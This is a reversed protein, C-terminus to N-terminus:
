LAADVASLLEEDLETGFFAIRGSKDILVFSPMNKVGFLDSILLDRDDLNAYPVQREKVFSTAAETGKDVTVGLLSLRDGRRKFLDVLGPVENKCPECWSAWFVLLTPKGLTGPEFRFASGDLLSAQFQPAPTLLSADGRAGTTKCAANGLVALLCLSLIGSRM